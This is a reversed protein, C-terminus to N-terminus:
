RRRAGGYRVRMFHNEFHIVKVRTILVQVHLPLEVAELGGTGFAATHQAPPKM